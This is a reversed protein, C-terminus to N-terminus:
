GVGRQLAEVVPGLVLAPFVTLGAVIAIVAVLLV